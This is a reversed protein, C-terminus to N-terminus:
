GPGPHRGGQTQGPERSLGQAGASRSQRKRPEMQRGAPARVQTRPEFPRTATLLGSVQTQWTANAKRSGCASKKLGPNAAESGLLQELKHTDESDHVFHGGEVGPVRHFLGVLPRTSANTSSEAVSLWAEGSPTMAGTVHRAKSAARRSDLSRRRAATQFREGGKERPRRRDALRGKPTACCSSSNEKRSHIPAHGEVEAPPAKTFGYAWVEAENQTSATGPRRPLPNTGRARCEPSRHPSRRRSRYTKSRAGSVMRRRKTEPMTKPWRASNM